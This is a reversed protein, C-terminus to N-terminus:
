RRRWAYALLSLLGCVFLSLMGPEPVITFSTSLYATDGAPRPNAGAWIWHASSDFTSAGPTTNWPGVGYAGCDSAASLADSYGTTNGAWNTDSVLLTSDTELFIYSSLKLQAIVGALGEGGNAGVVHLYLKQNMPVVFDLTEATEWGSGNGILTGLVSDSTSVYLSYSDDATVTAAVHAGKTVDVGYAYTRPLNPNSFSLTDGIALSTFPGGSNHDTLGSGEVFDVRAGDSTYFGAYVNQGATVQFGQSAVGYSATKVGTAAATDTAGVWVTTYSSGPTGVALFPTVGGAVTCAYSFDNVNYWGASLNTAIQSVNLREGGVSDFNGNSCYDSGPGILTAAEGAPVALAFLAGLASVCLFLRM